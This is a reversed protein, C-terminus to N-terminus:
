RQHAHSIGKKCSVSEPQSFLMRVHRVNSALSAQLRPREDRQNVLQASAARADPHRRDAGASTHTGGREDFNERRSACCRV